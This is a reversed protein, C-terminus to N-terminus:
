CLKDELKRLGRESAEIHNIFFDDMNKRKTNKFSPCDPYGEIIDVQPLLHHWHDIEGETINGNCRKQNLEELLDPLGRVFTAFDSWNSAQAFLRRKESDSDKYTGM